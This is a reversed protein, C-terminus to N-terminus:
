REPGDPEVWDAPFGRDMRWQRIWALIRDVNEDVSEPDDSQLEVVIETAYSERAEELVVQMIEATNNEEIKKLPYNRHRPRM